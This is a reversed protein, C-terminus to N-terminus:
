RDCIYKKCKEKSLQMGSGVLRSLDKICAFHAENNELVYLLNVHKEQKNTLRLPVISDGETTFMNVSISNLRELKSIQSLTVQPIRYRVSEADDLLAPIRDNKIFKKGCSVFRRGGSICFV